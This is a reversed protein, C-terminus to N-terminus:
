FRAMLTGYGPVTENVWNPSPILLGVKARWGIENNLLCLQRMKMEGQGVPM